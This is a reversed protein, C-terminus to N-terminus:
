SAMQPVAETKKQYAFFFVLSIVGLTLGMMLLASTLSYLDVFYGILPSFTMFLLSNVMNKISLVTARKASPIRKNIYDELLPHFPGSFLSHAFIFIFGLGFIFQSELIFVAALGLPIILLANRTGVRNELRYAQRASFGGILNQIAYIFGFWALPVASLELYPQWLWFGISFFFWITAAYFVFYGAAGRTSIRWSTGLHQLYSEEKRGTRFIPPEALTFKVATALLGAVFYAWWAYSMDHAALLGGIIGAFAMSLSGYWGMKGAIQQFRDEREIAKLTDYLMATDTGSTLAAGIGGISMALLVVIFSDSFVIIPIIPIGIVSAIVLSWKRSVRDSIVGTPIELLLSILYYASEILFFQQTTFGKSLLFLTYVVLHFQANGFIHILFLRNINKQMKEGGM